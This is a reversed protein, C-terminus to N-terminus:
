TTGVIWILVNETLVANCLQINVIYLDLIIKKSTTCELSDYIIGVDSM